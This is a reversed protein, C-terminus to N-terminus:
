DGCVGVQIHPPPLFTITQFQPSPIYPPHHSIPWIQLWLFFDSNSNQPNIHFLDSRFESSFTLTQIRPPATIHFTLVWLALIQRFKLKPLPSTFHWFGFNGLDTYIEIPPPPTIHFTLVWLALIQRFKLKWPPPPPPAPPSTFHWVWLALIQRFKLKWHPHHSILNWKLPSTLFKTLFTQFGLKGKCWLYDRM